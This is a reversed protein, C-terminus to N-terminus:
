QFERRFADLEARLDALENRLSAVEQELAEVRPELAPAAASAATARTAHEASTAQPQLPPEGALLHAYRVEKQGPLRPLQAVLPLNLTALANLTIEVHALDIFEFMRATRTRIEGPTQPGRLLLVCLAAQEQAHLQLTDQLLHRWRKVRSDSRHVERALDRRVLTRVADMVDSETLQMVPDRNSSQNCAATLANLSLPYNDPTTFAKEVLAGLARAAAADLPEAAFDPIAVDHNSM